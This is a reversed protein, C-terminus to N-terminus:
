ASIGSAHPSVMPLAAQVIGRRPFNAGNSGELVALSIFGSALSSLSRTFARMPTNANSWAVRHRM